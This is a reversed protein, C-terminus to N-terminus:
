GFLSENWSEEWEVPIEADMSVTLVSPMITIVLAEPKEYFRKEM